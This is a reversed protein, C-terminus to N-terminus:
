IVELCKGKGLNWHFCEQRVKGTFKGKSPLIKQVYHEEWQNEVANQNQDPSCAGNGHKNTKNKKEAKQAEKAKRKAEAALRVEEAKRKQEAEAALQEEKQKLLEAEAQEFLPKGQEMLKASQSQSLFDVSQM